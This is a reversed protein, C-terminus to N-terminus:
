LLTLEKAEKLYMTVKEEAYPILEKEARLYMM